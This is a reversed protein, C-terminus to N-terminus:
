MPSNQSSQVYYPLDEAIQIFLDRYTADVPNSGFFHYAIALPTAPVILLGFLTKIDCSAIYTDLIKGDSNSLTATLSISTTSTYPYITNTLIHLLVEWTKEHSDYKSEISLRFDADPMDFESNQLFRTEARVRDFAERAEQKSVKTPPKGLPKGNALIEHQFDIEINPANEYTPM